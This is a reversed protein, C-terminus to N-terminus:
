VGKPFWPWCRNVRRCYEEYETGYLERLWKEETNKLLITLFLWYGFPLLLFFLNGAILLAGTCVIMIASYIPNRVIAYAGTTVLHNSLIGDDIRSVPVAYVWLAIGFLICLMGAAVSLMRWVGDLHGASLFAANRVLFAALTVAIIVGGFVPGPGYIPLHDEKNKLTMGAEQYQLLASRWCNFISNIPIIRRFCLRGTRFYEPPIQTKTEFSGPNAAANAANRADKRLLIRNLLKPSRYIKGMASRVFGPM